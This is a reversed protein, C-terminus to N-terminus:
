CRLFLACRVEGMCLSNQPMTCGFASHKLQTVHNAVVRDRLVSQRHWQSLSPYSGEPGAITDAAAQSPTIEPSDHQEFEPWLKEPISGTHDYGQSVTEPPCIQLIDMSQMQAYGHDVQALLKMKGPSEESVEVNVVEWGPQAM